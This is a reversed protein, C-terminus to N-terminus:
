ALNHGDAEGMRGDTSVSIRSRMRRDLERDDGQAWLDVLSVQKVSSSAVALPPSQWLLVDLM